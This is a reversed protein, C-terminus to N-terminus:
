LSVRGLIESQPICGFTRSDYSMPRNDGVVFCQGPPVTLAQLHREPLRHARELRRLAPAQWAEVIENGVGDDYQLLLLREGPLAYIRKTLTEGGHRFVVIDGCKLPHHRYYRTNLVYFGGPRLTPTMSHGLVVTPRLPVAVGTILAAGLTAILLSPCRM